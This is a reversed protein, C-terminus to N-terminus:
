RWHTRWAAEALSEKLSMYVIARALRMTRRYWQLWTEAPGRKVGMIRCIINLEATNLKKSEAVSLRWSGSGWLATRRLTKNYLQVRSLLSSSRSKFLEKLEFYRGWMKGIRADIEQHCHGDPTFLTGLLDLSPRWPM